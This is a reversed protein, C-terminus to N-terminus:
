ISADIYLFLTTAYEKEKGSEYRSILIESKRLGHGLNGDAHWPCLSFARVPLHKTERAKFPLHQRAAARRMSGDEM